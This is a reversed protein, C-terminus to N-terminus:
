VLTSNVEKQYGRIAKLLPKAYDIPNAEFVQAGGEETAIMIVINNIPIGTMEQWM